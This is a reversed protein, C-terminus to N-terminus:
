EELGLARSINPQLCVVAAWLAVAVAVAMVFPTGSMVHVAVAGGFYATFLLAGLARFRPLSLLVLAIVEWIGLFLLISPDVGVKRTAEVAFSPGALHMGADMAMFAFFLWLLVRGVWLRAKPVEFSGVISQQNVAPLSM